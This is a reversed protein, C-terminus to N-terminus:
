FNRSCLKQCWINICKYSGFCTLNRRTATSHLFLLSFISQAMIHFITQGCYFRLAWVHGVAGFSNSVLLLLLPDPHANKPTQLRIPIPYIPYRPSKGLRGEGSRYKEYKQYKQYKQM